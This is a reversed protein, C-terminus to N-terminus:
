ECFVRVKEKGDVEVQLDNLNLILEDLDESKIRSFDMDIGKDKLAKEVKGQANHPIFTAWKMGARILNIPVRVNVRDGNPDNPGPEVLIRLYKINEVASPQGRENVASDKQTSLAELLREAEDVKIKGKSLMDLIKRREQNM